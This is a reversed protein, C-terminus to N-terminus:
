RLFWDWPTKEAEEHLSVEKQSSNAIEEIRAIRWNASADAFCVELVILSPVDVVGSPGQGSAKPTTRGRSDVVVVERRSQVLVTVQGFGTKASRAQGVTFGHRMQLISAERAFGNVVFASREKQPQQQKQGGRSRGKKISERVEQYMKLEQKIGEGLGETVIARLAAVEGGRHADIFKTFVDEALKPFTRNDFSKHHRQIFASSYSSKLVSKATAMRSKVGEVSM